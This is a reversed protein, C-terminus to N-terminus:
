AVRYATRDDQQPEGPRDLDVVCPVEYSARAACTRRRHRRERACVSARSTRARARTRRIHGNAKRDHAEREQSGEREDGRGVRHQGDSGRRGRRRSCAREGDVAQMEVFREPADNGSITHERRQAPTRRVRLRERELEYTVARAQQPFNACDGTLARVRKAARKCRRHLDRAEIREVSRQDVNARLASGGLWRDHRILRRARVVTRRRRARVARVIGPERKRGSGGERRRRRVRNGPLVIATRSRGSGGPRARVRGCRQARERRQGFQVVRRVDPRARGALVDDLQAQVRVACPLRARAAVDDAVVGFRPAHHEDRRRDRRMGHRRAVAEVLM